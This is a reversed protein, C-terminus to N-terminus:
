NVVCILWGMNHGILEGGEILGLAFEYVQADLEAGLYQYGNQDQHDSKEGTTPNATNELLPELFHLEFGRNPLQQHADDAYEHEPHEQEHRQIVEPHLQEREDRTEANGARADGRAM